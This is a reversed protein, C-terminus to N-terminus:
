CLAIKWRGTWFVYGEQSVHLTGLSRFAQKGKYSAWISHLDASQASFSGGM